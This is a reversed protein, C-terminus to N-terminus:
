EGGLKMEATAQAADHENRVFCQYMGRDEKAVATIKVHEKTLLRVRSGTRLPQGDKLWWVSAKPFGGITCVLETSKGLDITQHVPQIHATLPAIVDLNLELRETGESNACTCVYQGADSQHVATFRLTGDVVSVRQRHGISSSAGNNAGGGGSLHHHHSHSASSSGGSSGFLAFTTNPIPEDRGFRLVHWSRTTVM